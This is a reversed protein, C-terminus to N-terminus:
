SILERNKKWKSHLYSRSWGGAGFIYDLYWLRDVCHMSEKGININELWTDLTPNRSNMSCMFYIMMSGECLVYSPNVVGVWGEYLM